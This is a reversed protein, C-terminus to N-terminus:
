IENVVSKKARLETGLVYYTSLLCKNFSYLCRLLPIQAQLCLGPSLTFSSSWASNFLIPLHLPDYLEMICKLCTLSNLLEPVLIWPPSLCLVLNSFQPLIISQQPAQAMDQLDQFVDSCNPALSHFLWAANTYIVKGISHLFSSYSYSYSIILHFWCSILNQNSIHSSVPPTLASRLDQHQTLFCTSIM